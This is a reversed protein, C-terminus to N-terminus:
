EAIHPSVGPPCNEPSSGSSRVTLTFGQLAFGMPTVPMFCPRVDSHPAFRRSPSFGQPRFTTPTADRRSTSESPSLRRLPLFEMLTASRAPRRSKPAPPRRPQRAVNPQVRYHACGCSLLQKTEASCRASQSFYRVAHPEKSNRFRVRSRRVLYPPVGIPRLGRFHLTVVHPTHRFL